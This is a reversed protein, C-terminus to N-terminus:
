WDNFDLSPLLNYSLGLKKVFGEEKHTIECRRDKLVDMKRNADHLNKMKRTLLFKRYGEQYNDLLFSMDKSKPFKPQRFNILPIVSEPYFYSENKIDYYLYSVNLGEIEESAVRKFDYAHNLLFLVLAKARVSGFYIKNPFDTVSFPVDPKDNYVPNDIGSTLFKQFVDYAKRRKSLSYITFYSAYTTIWFWKKLQKLKRADPQDIENFFATVFVLQINYPLLKSDIVLLEEFLFKVGKQISEITKRTTPIFDERRVLQDINRQDFYIEGFSSIICQLIVERKIEHFNYLRLEELLNDILTGLRFDQNQNYTLASVMWDPSMEAGKSNVRSFIEVADEIGGGIIDISPLQFDILTTGLREYRDLYLNVQKEDYGKNILDRQFAFTFRTDILNYIEVQFPELDSRPIFFEEIKLDYCILYEKRWEDKDYELNTKKPNTLCGFLTSLRQFGDLVYFYENAETPISYPGIKPGSAFEEEEPKWFLISGIPFGRQLSDFLDLKDNNKWIFDRQFAPIQILGKEIDELYLVLRRVRPHIQLKASM